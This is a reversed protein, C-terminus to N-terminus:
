MRTDEGKSDSKATHSKETFEGGGMWDERVWGPTAIKSM